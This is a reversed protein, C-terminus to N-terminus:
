NLNKGTMKREMQFENKMAKHLEDEDSYSSLVVSDPEIRARDFDKTQKTTM